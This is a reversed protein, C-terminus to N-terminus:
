KHKKVDKVNNSHKIKRLQLYNICKKPRNEITNNDTDYFKALIDDTNKYVCPMIKAFSLCNDGVWGIPTGNKLPEINLFKINHEILFSMTDNIDQMVQKGVGMLRVIACTETVLKKTTGLSVLYIPASTNNEYEYGNRLYVPADPFGTREEEWQLQTNLLEPCVEDVDQTENRKAFQHLVSM